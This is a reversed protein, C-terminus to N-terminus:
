TISKKPKTKKRGCSENRETKIMHSVSRYNMQLDVRDMLEEESLLIELFRATEEQQRESAKNTEKEQACPGNVGGVPERLM